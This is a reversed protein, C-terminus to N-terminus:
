FPQGVDLIWKRKSARTGCLPPLWQPPQTKVDMCLMWVLCRRDNWKGKGGIGWGVEKNTLFDKLRQLTMTDTWLLFDFTTAWIYPFPSPVTGGGLLWTKWLFSLAYGECKWWCRWTKWLFALFVLCEFALRRCSIQFAEDVLLPFNGLFCYCYWPM